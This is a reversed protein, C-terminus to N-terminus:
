SFTSHRFPFSPKWNSRKRRFIHCFRTLTPLLETKPLAGFDAIVLLCLPAPRLFGYLSPNQGFLGFVIFVVRCNILTRSVLKSMIAGMILALASAM